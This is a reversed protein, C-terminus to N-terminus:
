LVIGREIMEKRLRKRGRYIRNEVTKPTLCLYSAIDKVKEFLFFRRTFIEKDPEGMDNIINQLVEVDSKLALYEEINEKAEMNEDEFYDIKERALKNYRNITTSRAVCAIYGKLSGRDFDIKNINKWLVIFTDAICEEIDEQRNHLIKIAIGKVLGGYKVTAEYIGREPSNKLLLLIRSDEM